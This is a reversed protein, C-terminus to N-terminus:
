RYVGGSYNFQNYWKKLCIVVAFDIDKGLFISILIWEPLEHAM